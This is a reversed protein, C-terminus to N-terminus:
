MNNNTKQQLIESSKQNENFILGHYKSTNQIILMRARNEELIQEDNEDASNDSDDAQM